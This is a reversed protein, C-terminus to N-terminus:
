AMQGGDPDKTGPYLLRRYQPQHIRSQHKKKKMPTGGQVTQPPKEQFALLCRPKPDPQSLRFAHSRTWARSLPDGQSQHPLHPLKSIRCVGAFPYALLPRHEKVPANHHQYRICPYFFIRYRCHETGKRYVHEGGEKRRSQYNYIDSQGAPIAVQIQTM